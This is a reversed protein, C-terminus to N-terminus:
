SSEQMDNSSEQMSKGDSTLNDSHAVFPSFTGFPKTVAVVIDEDKSKEDSTSLPSSSDQSSWDNYSNASSSSPSTLSSLSSYGSESM